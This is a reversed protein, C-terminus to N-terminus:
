DIMESGLVYDEMYEIFMFLDYDYENDFSKMDYLGLFRDFNVLMYKGDVIFIYDEMNDNNCIKDLNYSINENLDIYIFNKSVGYIRIIEKRSKVIYDSKYNEIEKNIINEIEEIEEGDLNKRMEDYKLVYELIDLNNSKLRDKSFCIRSVNINSEEVSDVCNEDVLNECFNEVSGVINYIDREILM